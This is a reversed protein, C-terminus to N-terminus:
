HHFFPAPTFLSIIACLIAVWFTSGGLMAFIFGGLIALPMAVSYGFIMNVDYQFLLGMVWLILAYLGVSFLCGFTGTGLVPLISLPGSSAMRRSKSYSM